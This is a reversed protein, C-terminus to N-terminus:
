FPSEQTLEPVYELWFGNECPFMFVHPSDGLKSKDLQMRSAFEDLADVFNTANLLFRKLAPVDILSAWYRHRNFAVATDKTVYKSIYRAIRLAKDSRKGSSVKIYKVDINGMSPAGAEQGLCQLWIKRALHVDIRGACAIHMHHHQINSPHAELVAVYEWVAGIATRYLRVFRRFRELMIDPTNSDERTTLTLLHDAGIVKCKIRVVKKARQQARFKNDAESIAKPRSRLGIERKWAQDALQQFDIEKVVAEYGEGTEQISAVWRTPEVLRFQQVLTGTLVSPLIEKQLAHPRTENGRELTDTSM